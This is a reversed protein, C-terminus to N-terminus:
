AYTRAHYGLDKAYLRDWKVVHIKGRRKFVVYELPFPAELCLEYSSMPVLSAWFHIFWANHSLELSLTQGDVQVTEGMLLFGPRRIITGHFFCRLISKALAGEPENAEYWDKAIQGVDQHPSV